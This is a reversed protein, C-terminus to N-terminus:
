YFCHRLACFRVPNWILFMLIVSLLFFSIMIGQYIDFSLRSSCNVVLLINEICFAKATTLPTKAPYISASSLDQPHLSFTARPNSAPGITASLNRWANPQRFTIPTGALANAVSESGAIILAAPNELEGRIANGDYVQAHHVSIFISRNDM